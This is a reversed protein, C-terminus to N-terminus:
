GRDGRRTAPRDWSSSGRTRQGPITPPRPLSLPVRGDGFSGSTSISELEGSSKSSTARLDRLISKSEEEWTGGANRVASPMWKSSRSSVTCSLRKGKMGVPLVSLTARSFSCWSAGRTTPIFYLTARSSSMKGLWSTGGRPGTFRSGQPSRGRSFSHGRDIAGRVTAEEYSACDLPEGHYGGFYREIAAMM